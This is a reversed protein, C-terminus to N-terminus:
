DEEQQRYVSIASDGYVRTQVLRLSGCQEEAGTRQAHECVVVGEARLLGSQALWMLTPWPAQDYPPDCLVLDFRKSQKELLRLSREVSECLIQCQQELGIRQANDKILSCCRTSQDVFCSFSAGRSLAELGLAGSGAFLDLVEAQALADRSELMSFLAERVRSSTPRTGSHPARLKQGRAHGAIIRM